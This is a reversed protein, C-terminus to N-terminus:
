KGSKEDVVRFLEERTKTTGTNALENKRARGQTKKKRARIRETRKTPSVM